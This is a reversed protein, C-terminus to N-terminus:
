EVVSPRVWYEELENTYMNIQNSAASCLKLDTLTHTHTGVIFGNEAKDSINNNNQFDFIIIMLFDVVFPM